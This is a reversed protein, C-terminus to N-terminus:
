ISMRQPIAQKNSFPEEAEDDFLKCLMDMVIIFLMPSLPDGQTLGRGHWFSQDPIGGQNVSYRAVYHDVLVM